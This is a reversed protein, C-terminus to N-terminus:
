FDGRFNSNHFTSMPIAQAAHTSVIDAGFPKGVQYAAPLSLSHNADAFLAYMNEVEGGIDASLRWTTYGAIGDVSLVDTDINVIIDPNSPLPPRGNHGPSRGDHIEHCNPCELGTPDVDDAWATPSAALLLLLPARPM